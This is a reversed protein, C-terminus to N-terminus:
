SQKSTDNMITIKCMLKYHVCQSTWFKLVYQGLKRINEVRGADEWM